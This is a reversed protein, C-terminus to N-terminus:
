GFATRIPTLWRPEGTSGSIEAVFAEPNGLVSFTRPGFTIDDAFGGSFVIDGTPSSALARIYPAGQYTTADLRTTFIPQGTFSLKTIFGGPLTAEGNPNTYDVLGLDSGAAYVAGTADVAVATVLANTGRSKWTWLHKGDADFGAVIGTQVEVIFDGDYQITEQFFGGVITDGGPTTALSLGQAAPGLEDEISKSWLLKGRPDFRALFTATPFFANDRGTMDAGGLNLTGAFTGLLIVDGNPAVGVGRGQTIQGGSVGGWLGDGIDNLMTLFVGQGIGDPLALSPDIGEILAGTVAPEGQADLAMAVVSQGAESPLLHSWPSVDRSRETCATLLCFAALGTLRLLRNQELM